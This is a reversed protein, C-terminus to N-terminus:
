MGAIMRVLSPIIKALLGVILGIAAYMIYSRGSTVKEPAGASTLLNMAGLIVFLGALAVLIVFIWDTVSYLTNMVCFMGWKAASDSCYIGTGCEAAATSNPAAISGVGCSSTDLTIARKIVCCETPPEQAFTTLPVALVVALFGVIVLVSYIKKM